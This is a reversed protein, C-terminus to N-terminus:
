INPDSVKDRAIASAPDPGLLGACEAVTAAQVRTRVDLKRLINTVHVSATRAIIFLIAGIETNSRGEAILRLVALERQTLGFGRTTATSRPDAPQDPQSLQIRARQALNKIAASLPAHGRAQGAATRLVVTASTRGVPQAVLAEAQRWRAYAARHPRTLADWAECRAGV